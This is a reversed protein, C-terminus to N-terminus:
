YDEGKAGKSGDAGRAVGENALQAAAHTGRDGVGQEGVGRPGGGADARHDAHGDCM